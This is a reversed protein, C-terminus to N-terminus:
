WPEDLPYATEVLYPGGGTSARSSFLVFRTVPFSKRAVHGQLALYDAVARASVGGGLRALTVHPTFKRSEPPLGAARAAREHEAQLESLIRSPTVAAHISRPRSGGFASLEGIELEFSHKATDDLLDAVDRATRNDIDGLFRLTIHYSGPDIWRAGPIGGRHLSLTQAVPEPVEIGTFLRPM